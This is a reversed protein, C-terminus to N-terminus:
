FWEEFWNFAISWKSFATKGYKYWILSFIAYGCYCIDSTIISLNLSCSLLSKISSPTLHLQSITIMDCLKVLSNWASSRLALFAALGYTKSFYLLQIAFSIKFYSLFPMAGCSTYTERRNKTIFGNCALHIISKYSWQFASLSVITEPNLAAPIYSAISCAWYIM